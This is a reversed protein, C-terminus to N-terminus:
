GSRAGLLDEKNKGLCALLLEMGGEGMGSLRSLAMVTESDTFRDGRAARDLNIMIATIVMENIEDRNYSAM